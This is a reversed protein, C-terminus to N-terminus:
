AAARSRRRYMDLAFFADSMITLAHQWPVSNDRTAPRHRSMIAVSEGLEALDRADCSDLADHLRKEVANLRERAEAIRAEAQASDMGDPRCLNNRYRHAQTMNSRASILAAEIEGYAAGVSLAARRLEHPFDLAAVGDEFKTQDFM